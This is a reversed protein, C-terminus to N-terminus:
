ILMIGTAFRGCEIGDRRASYLLDPNNYTCIGAIEINKNQIGIRLLLQRNAEQLDIHIKGTDRNKM